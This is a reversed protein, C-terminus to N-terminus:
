PRRNSLEDPSPIDTLLGDIYCLGPLIGKSKQSRVYERYFREDDLRGCLHFLALETLHASSGSGVSENPRPFIRSGPPFLKFGAVFPTKEDLLHLMESAERMRGEDLLTEAALWKAAMVHEKDELELLKKLETLEGRLAYPVVWYVKHTMWESYKRLDAAVRVSDGRLAHIILRDTNHVLTETEALKEIRQLRKPLEDRSLRGTMLRPDSVAICIATFPYNSETDADNLEADIKQLHIEPSDTSVFRNALLLGRSLEEASIPEQGKKSNLDAIDKELKADHNHKQLLGILRPNRIEPLFHRVMKEDGLYAYDWALLTASVNNASDALPDTSPSAKGLNDADFEKTLQELMTRAKEKRLRCVEPSLKEALIGTSGGVGKVDIRALVLQGVGGASIPEQPRDKPMLNKMDDASLRDEVYGALNTWTLRGERTAKGQLGELLCHTFLGHGLKENEYSQQGARCGFLIATNEPLSIVKGQIGKAGRGPDKPVDRCADILILKKGVNPALIDDTLHSISFLTDPKSPVAEYPCYFGDEKQKKPDALDPVAIQQGHGSLMVLMLDDGGLPKVLANATREINELTAQDKGSSSGKLITIQFGLRKLEAAVAEVDAEPYDLKTFGAKFYKNVGVLLAVKKTKPESEAAHTFSASLFGFLLGCTVVFYSPRRVPFHPRHFMIPEGRQVCPTEGRAYSLFAALRREYLNRFRISVGAM